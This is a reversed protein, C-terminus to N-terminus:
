LAWGVQLQRLPEWSRNRRRLRWTQRMKRGSMLRQQSFALLPSPASVVRADADLSEGATNRKRVSGAETVSTM